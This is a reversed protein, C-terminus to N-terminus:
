GEKEALEALARHVEDVAAQDRDPIDRDVAVADVPEVVFAPREPDENLEEATAEAEEAEEAVVVEDTQVNRVVFEDEVPPLEEEPAEVEVPAPMEEAGAPASGDTGEPLSFPATEKGKHPDDIIKPDMPPRPNPM